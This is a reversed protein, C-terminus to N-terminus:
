CTVFVLMFANMVRRYPSCRTRRLVVYQVACVRTLWFSGSRAHLPAASSHARLQVYIFGTHTISHILFQCRLSHITYVHRPLQVTDYGIYLTATSHLRFIMRLRILTMSCNLQSHLQFQSYDTSGVM